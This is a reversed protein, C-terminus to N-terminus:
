YKTNAILKKHIRAGGGGGGRDFRSRTKLKGYNLGCHVTCGMPIKSKLLWVLGSSPGM